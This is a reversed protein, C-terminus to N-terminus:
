SSKTLLWAMAEDLDAHEFTFGAETLVTPLARQSGLIDSAMEGLALRLAITPAPLVTPRHLQEGLAKVVEAQPAPVPGTINVPGTLQPRDILFLLARVVDHLTVWSWYQEGKGLPGALGFRALPLLRAMAGGEPSLVIGTRLFAIRSGAQEAQWTAGEWDRCVESLFGAGDQSDETLVDTGRDGYIGVASASLLRPVPDLAAVAASVTVTSDVRSSRITEKYATTWRKDGIGAGALNVVTDVGSLDAAELRGQSPDWSVETVGDPLETAPERRVLHVVSDGRERLATSLASGILGSAGTIAVRHQSNGPQTM